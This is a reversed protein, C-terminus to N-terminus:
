SKPKWNSNMEMALTWLFILLKMLSTGILILITSAENPNFSVDTFGQDLNQLPGYELFANHNQQDSSSMWEGGDLLQDLDDNNWDVAEIIEEPNELHGIEGIKKVHTQTLTLSSNRDVALYLKKKLYATKIVGVGGDSSSSMKRKSSQEKHIKYRIECIVVDDADSLSYQDMIWKFGKDGISGDKREFVFYKHVGM